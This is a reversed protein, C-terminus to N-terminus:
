GASAAAGGQYRGLIRDAAAALVGEAGDILTAEPGLRVLLRELWARGGVALTVRCRGAGLERVKEVPYYEVVWRARPSLELTVREDSRAPEFTTAVPAPARPTFTKELLTVRRVRDARFRRRDDALHCWGTLYWQGEVAHLGDPDVIRRTRRDTGYAYYDIEVQRHGAVAERLTELVGEPATGLEVELSGEVDVGLVSALKDLGRALPGEPDAGPVARAAAGAALLSLAEEPTLRLPRAFHDALRIWVRDEVIEVEMLADPTFPYVGCLFVLDLDAALEAQTTDFRRCVESLTPGDQQVIWPVLALLRQLREPSGVRSM